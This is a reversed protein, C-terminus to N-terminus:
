GLAVGRGASCNGDFRREETRLRLRWLAHGLALGVITTMVVADFLALGTPLAGWTWMRDRWGAQLPGTILPFLPASLLLGLARWPWAAVAHLQTHLAHECDTCRPGQVM